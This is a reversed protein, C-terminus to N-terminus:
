IAQIVKILKNFEKSINPIDPVRGERLDHWLEGNKPLILKPTGAEFLTIGLSFIDAKELQSFDEHLIEDPLYRCDGEEVQPNRISTVHGLDGIKYKVETELEDYIDEFGDDNTEIGNATRCASLQNSRIKTETIFINGAKLDMHVLCNSHIYRLGDAVHTMLTILESESLHRKKLLNQLSGGNCYENQILM